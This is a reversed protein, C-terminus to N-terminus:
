VLRCVHLICRMIVSYWGVCMCSAGCLLVIGIIVSCVHLICRMIVSIVSYM